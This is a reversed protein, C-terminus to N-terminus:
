NEEIIELKFGRITNNVVSTSKIKLRKILYEKFTKIASPKGSCNDQYWIKFNDYLEKIKFKDDDNNTRYSNNYSIVCQPPKIKKRM